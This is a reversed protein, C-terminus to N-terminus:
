SYARATSHPRSDGRRAKEQYYQLVYLRIACSLNAHTRRDDIERVLEQHRKGLSLAIERLSNWFEDELSVSTKHHGILISRKVRAGRGYAPSNGSQHKM